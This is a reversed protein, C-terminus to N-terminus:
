TNELPILDRVIHKTKPALPGIKFDREFLFLWCVCGPDLPGPGAPQIWTESSAFAWLAKPRARDAWLGPRTSAHCNRETPCMGHRHRLLAAYIRPAGACM